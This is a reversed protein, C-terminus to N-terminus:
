LFKINENNEKDDKLFYLAVGGLILSVIGQYVGHYLEPTSTFREFATLSSDYLIHSLDPNSITTELINFYLNKDTTYNVFHDISCYGNIASFTGCFTFGIFRTLDVM